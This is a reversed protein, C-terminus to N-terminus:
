NNIRKERSYLNPQTTTQNVLHHLLNPLFLFYFYEELFIYILYPRIKNMFIDDVYIHFRNM